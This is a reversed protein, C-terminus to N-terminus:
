RRTFCYNKKKNLHAFDFMSSSYDTILVDSILFLEQIDTLENFYAHIRDHLQNYKKYMHSELPHLKVIIEYNDPLQEIVSVWDIKTLEQRKKEM